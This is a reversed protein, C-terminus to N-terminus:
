KEKKGAKRGETNGKEMKREREWERKEVTTKTKVKRWAIKRKKIAQEECEM